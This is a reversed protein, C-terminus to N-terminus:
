SNASRAVELQPGLAEGIAKGLFDYVLRIRGAAHIERHVVLWVPPGAFAMGQFLRQLQPRPAAVYAPLFAIGAGACAAEVQVLHDDSRLAFHDRTLDYGGARFQRLVADDSDDGILDHDLLQALTAPEGRRRLYDLHAYAGIEVTGIRRAILSSQTPRAMRVAIDAERRLLNTLANSAVIELAIEPEQVRLRALIPPLLYGAALQSTTIRVTGVHKRDHGSVARHIGGAALDMARAAEAIALAAVTPTLGRGTREFLTAGLQRELEAIHRGITPQSGRLRRAAGLLSGTELTALFSRVLRWDFDAAAVINV